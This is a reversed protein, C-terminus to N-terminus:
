RGSFRPERREFFAAFGEEWDTTGVCVAQGYAEQEVAQEMTRMHSEDLLRAAYGMAVTAGNALRGAWETTLALLEAPPVARNILGLQAADPATIREAFLVMEKARKLGVLRPLLYSGGGDVSFGRGTFAECFYADEAALTLDCGFALNAAYGYAPGEVMALTPIPLRHLRVVLDGVLRMWPLIGGALAERDGLDAGGSFVGGAGRLVLARVGSGRAIEELADRMAGVMTKTIANRHSPRSMTMWAVAGDREVLVEGQDIPSEM